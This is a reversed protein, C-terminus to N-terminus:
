YATFCTEVQAFPLVKKHRREEVTIIAKIETPVANSVVAILHQEGYKLVVYYSELSAIRSLLMDPCSYRRICQFSDVMAM